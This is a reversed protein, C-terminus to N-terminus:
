PMDRSKGPSDSGWGVVVRDSFISVPLRKWVLRDSLLFFYPCPEPVWRRPNWAVM